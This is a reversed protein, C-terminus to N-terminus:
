PARSETWVPHAHEGTEGSGTVSQLKLGCLRELSGSRVSGPNTFPVDRQPSASSSRELWVCVYVRLDAGESLPFEESPAVFPRAWRHPGETGSCDASKIRCACIKERRM